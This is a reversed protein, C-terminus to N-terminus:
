LCQSRRRRPRESTKALEERTIRSLAEIDQHFRAAFQVSAFTARAAEPDLRMAVSGDKNTRISARM